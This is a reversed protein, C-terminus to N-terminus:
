EFDSAKFSINFAITLVKTEGHEIQDALVRLALAQISAIAAASTKGYALVGSLERVAAIFRGDEERDLTITFLM